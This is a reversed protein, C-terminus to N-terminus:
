LLVFRKNPSLLNSSGFILIYNARLNISEFIDECIIEKVNPGQNLRSGGAGTDYSVPRYHDCGTRIGM